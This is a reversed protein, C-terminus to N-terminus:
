SYLRKMIVFQSQGGSDKVMPSVMQYGQGYVDNHQREMACYEAAIKKSKLLEM